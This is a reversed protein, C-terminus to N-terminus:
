HKSIIILKIPIFVFKLPIFNKELDNKSHLLQKVNIKFNCFIAFNYGASFITAVLVCQRPSSM